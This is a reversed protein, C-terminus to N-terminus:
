FFYVFFDYVMVCKHCLFYLLPVKRNGSNERTGKVHETMNSLSFYFCDDFNNPTVSLLFGANFFLPSTPGACQTDGSHLLSTIQSEQAELFCANYSLVKCIKSISHVQIKGATLLKYTPHDKSESVYLASKRSKEGERSTM